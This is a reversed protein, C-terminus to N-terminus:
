KKASPVKFLTCNKTQEVIELHLADWEAGYADRLVNRMGNDINPAGTLIHTANGIMRQLPPHSRKTVGALSWAIVGGKAPTLGLAVHYPNSFLFVGLRMSPDAHRRLLQLGEDVRAMYDLMFDSRVDSQPSTPSPFRFDALRTTRLEDTTVYYGHAAGAAIHRITLLDNTLIPLLFVLLMITAALNRTAILCGEEPRNSRQQQMTAACYLAALALLPMEGIQTNTAWLLLASGFIVTLLLYDPWASRPEHRSKSIEWALVLFLPLFVVSTQALSAFKLLRGGPDQAALMIRYDGWLAALPIKTLFLAVGLFVSASLLCFLAHKVAFRGRLCALAFFGLGIVFYNLKSFLLLLLCLGAFAAEVWDAWSKKLAPEKPIFLIIGLLALFVEGYRNYLMAYSVYFFRDGLPRPAVALVALFLSFLCACSASTRRRLLTMAALGTAVMLFVNGTTLSSIGPRGLKMGLWAVYFPLDGFYVYFDKHPVQGNLIRWAGDLFHPPDAVSRSFTPAGIWLFVAGLVALSVLLLAWAVAFAKRTRSCILGNIREHYESLLYM